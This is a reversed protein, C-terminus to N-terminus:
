LERLVRLPSKRLVDRAGWMGAIGVLLGAAPPTVLLADPHVVFPMNFVQTYLAYLLAESLVVALLGASFGLVGFECWQMAHLLQRNAGLTRLLAGDYIRQDLTAQVAAFLVTFGALLAFYLVADIAATLQRLITKFQRVILDVELVTVAPFQKVLGNLANKQEPALFFSTLYTGAYRDLTGPSFVMYFNPKMTDWDLHRFSAVTASFRESGVTFLLTDGLKLRLSEALKREVSVLGAKNEPWWQGVTIMNDEPLQVSWTLSLERHTAQEGQSDKTVIRQVPIANIEVLRGRVVPYFRNASIHLTQLAQRFADLQQPFINLVFHNPADDPLQKQWNDLLSTRVNFSLLMATLAIGFATIQSVAAARNRFIGRLAFRWVLGLRPLLRRCPLLLTYLIGALLSVVALGAGILTVTMRLDETYRWILVAVAALALGYVLWASAPLPMLDRRLVRLPTVRKLRLLPPLAFGALTILGTGFGFALSLPTPDSLTQPLLNGLMRFLAQQAFWGLLCGVGSVVSGLLLLQYGYLCLIRGQRCGMCRLIATSDFHRESYRNTTMAIAVGALLVVVISSLGLYRQARELASGLEPRDDHIDMLRQSPNLRPKLWRKFANLAEKGGSFQLFYHVHSGPQLVQTAELDAANIMVRPSFSFLDGHKDPEYTLVQTVRLAKEGVTLFEGLRLQLATLVRMEVWAEGVPPGHQVTNEVTYDSSSVNLHARLPYAASVAKVGALLLEGREMLVSSFEVTYAQRLRLRVAKARWEDPMAAPSAVVLDAALFDAAQASMTYKLRDTFVGVATAATVAILLAAVLVTLEGSRADRWLLRGALTLTKM